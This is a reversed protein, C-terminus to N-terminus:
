SFNGKMRFYFNRLLAGKDLTKSIMEQIFEPCQM